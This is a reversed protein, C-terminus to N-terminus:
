VKFLSHLTIFSENSFYIGHTGVYHYCTANSVSQFLKSRLFKSSESQLYIMTMMLSKGKEYERRYVLCQQYKQCQASM